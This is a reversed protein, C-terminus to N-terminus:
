LMSSKNDIIQNISHIVVQSSKFSLVNPGLFCSLAKNLNLNNFTQCLTSNVRRMSNSQCAIQGIRVCDAIKTLLCVQCSLLKFPYNVWFHFTTM